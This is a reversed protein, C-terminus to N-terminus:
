SNHLAFRRYIFKEKALISYKLPKYTVSIFNGIILIKGVFVSKSAVYSECVLCRRSSLVGFIAEKLGM